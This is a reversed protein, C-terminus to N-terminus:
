EWELEKYAQTVNRGHYDDFLAWKGRESQGVINVAQEITVGRAIAARTETLLTTLYRELGAASTPWDVSAPGHGPVARPTRLAKLAQLEKLWGPLSGDLSPVRRVFLLDSALLTGSGTDVVSLDNDTHAKAHATLTLVRGGLDINRTGQVLMTPAVVFGARAKGLEAELRARYYEGRLALANPLRAHGVFEPKDELFAPAGFVHDPHGHSLIVYRIPRATHSRIAARLAQGDELSGGADITAVCDRGVIFGVNAIADGNAATADEDVGSSIFLGPAVEVFGSRRADRHTRGAASGAAADRRAAAAATPADAAPPDPAPVDAATAERAAVITGACAVSGLLGIVAQRRTLLRIDTCKM